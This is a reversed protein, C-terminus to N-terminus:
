RQKFELIRKLNMRPLIKKWREMVYIMGLYHQICMCVCMHLSM